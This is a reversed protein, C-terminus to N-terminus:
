PAKPFARRLCIGCRFAAGPLPSAAMRSESFDTGSRLEIALGWKGAELAMKNVGLNSELPMQLVLSPPQRQLAESGAHRTHGDGSANGVLGM